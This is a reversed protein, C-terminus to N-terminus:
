SKEYHRVIDELLKEKTINKLDSAWIRMLNYGAKIIRNNRSQDCEWIEYAKLKKVGIIDDPKYNNPNAHWYDGDVEVIMNYTPLYFDCYIRPIKKFQKEYCIGLEDLLCSFKLEPQTDKSKKPLKNKKQWDIQRLEAEEIGYDIIWREFNSLKMRQTVPKNALRARGKPTLSYRKMSDSLKNKYSESKMANVCNLKRKESIEASSYVLMNQLKMHQKNKESNRWTDFRSFDGFTENPFNVKYDNCTMNHKKLHSNTIAKLKKNCVRCIVVQGASTTNEEQITEPECGLNIVSTESGEGSREPAQSSITWDKKNKMANVSM